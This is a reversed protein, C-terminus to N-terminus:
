SGDLEFQRKLLDINLTITDSPEDRGLIAYGEVNLLRQASAIWGRLRFTPM